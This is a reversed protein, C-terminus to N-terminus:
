RFKIFGTKSVGLQVGFNRGVIDGGDLGVAATVQWGRLLRLNRPTYTVEAMGCFMNKVDAFPRSYTGWSRVYSLLLRWSWEGSPRGCIGLHHAQLRTSLFNLRHPNNYVPSLNFPNGIAMGRNEWGVYLDHEYYNDAGPARGPVEPTVTWNVAGSQDKSYLYEYVIRSVWPNDPLDGQVGWLGDKWPYDIYLMSHDEFFHQYYARVGWSAGPAHWTLAYNWCGLMNGQVNQQETIPTTSDGRGPVLAKVFAKFDTPGKVTWGSGYYSVNHATGGFQTAMEIGVELTLPFRDPNGNRLWLARSCYLANDIYFGKDGVWHEQWHGDAFAGYSLYGKVSLWGRLGWIPAYDFIGARIQPIPAANGSYLLGGSSLAPDGLTGEDIERAGVMLDLCRYSVEGYLQHLFFPAGFRWPVAADIGAGWTFRQGPDEQKFAGLRLFGNNKEISALGHRNAAFWFPSHDGGSFGAQISARVELTDPREAAAHAPCLTGVAVIGLLTRLCRMPRLNPLRIPNPQM